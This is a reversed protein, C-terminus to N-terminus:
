KEHYFASHTVLLIQACLYQFYYSRTQNNVCQPVVTGEVTVVAIGQVINPGQEAYLLFRIRFIALIKLVYRLFTLDTKNIYDRIM